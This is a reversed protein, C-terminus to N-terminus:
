GCSSELFRAKCVIAGQTSQRSTQGDMFHILGNQDAFNWGSKAAQGDQPGCLNLIGMHRMVVRGRWIRLGGMCAPAAYAALGGHCRLLAM